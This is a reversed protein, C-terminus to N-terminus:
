TLDEKSSGIQASSSGGAAEEESIDPSAADAVAVDEILKIVFARDNKILEIMEDTTLKPDIIEGRQLNHVLTGTDFAGKMWSSVLALIMQSDMNIPIFDKSISVSSEFTAGFWKVTENFLDNFQKNLVTIISSLDSTESISKIKASTATKEIGPEPSLLRSGLIAMQEEMVELEKHISHVGTGEYELMGVKALENEILWLKQPGITKPSNPDNPDVGTVYPTPLAVFHLAHNHDAKLRYHSLNLNCLDMLPPINVEPTFDPQNIYFPIATLPKNNAKPTKTSVLVDEKTISQGTGTATKEEGEIYISQTYINDVLELVRYRVEKGYELYFPDRKTLQERLTVYTLKGNTYEWDMIDETKYAIWYVRADKANAEAITADDEIDTYDILTGFRGVELLEELAKKIYAQVDAGSQDINEVISEMSDPYLVQIANRMVLGTYGSVTKNFANFWRARLKYADYELDSQLTLRPLYTEGAEHIAEEGNKADRCKAWQVQRTQYEPHYTESINPM